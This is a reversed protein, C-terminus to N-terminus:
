SSRYGNRSLIRSTTRLRGGSRRTTRKATSSLYNGCANASAKWGVREVRRAVVTRLIVSVAVLPVRLAGAAVPYGPSAEGRPRAEAGTLLINYHRCALRGSGPVRVSTAGEDGKKKKDETISTKTRRLPRQHASTAASVMLKKMNRREKPDHDVALIM